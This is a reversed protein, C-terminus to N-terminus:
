PSARSVKISLICFSLFISRFISVLSMEVKRAMWNVLWPGSNLQFLKTQNVSDDLISFHLVAVRTLSWSIHFGKSLVLISSGERLKPVVARNNAMKEIQSAVGPRVNSKSDMLFCHERMFGLLGMSNCDLM